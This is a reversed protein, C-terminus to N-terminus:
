SKSIERWFMAKLIIVNIVFESVQHFRLGKEGRTLAKRVPPTLSKTKSKRHRWRSKSHCPRHCDRSKGTKKKKKRRNNKAIIGAGNGDRDERWSRMKRTSKKGKNEDDRAEFRTWGNGGDWETREGIGDDDSPEMKKGGIRM